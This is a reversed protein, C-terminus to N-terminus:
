AEKKRLQPERFVETNLPEGTSSSFQHIVVLGPRWGCFRSKCKVKIWGPGIEAFKIKGQECRLDM